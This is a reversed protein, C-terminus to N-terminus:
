VHARGIEMRGLPEFAARLVRGVPSATLLALLGIYLLALVGGAVGGATTFRPDGPHQSQWWLAPVAALAVVAVAIRIGRTPHELRDLLGYAVAAAGLLFLGPTAPIGGGFVGFGVATGVVGLGLVIARPVLLVVPLCVLGAVAYIRLIEGPYVLAHALGIVFLAGFRRVLVWAPQAGRNRVSAIVLALSVGFLLEFIPVFRGSVLYHLWPEAPGASAGSGFPVDYGLRTIDATNVLLIGAIAFGRLVDLFHYRTNM